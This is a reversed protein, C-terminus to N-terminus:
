YGRVGARIGEYGPELVRTDRYRVPANNYEVKIDFFTVNGDPPYQSCQAVKEYVFYVLSMM